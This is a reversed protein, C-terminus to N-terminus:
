NLLTAFRCAVIESLQTLFLNGMSYHFRNEDRSGIVLLARLNPLLIPIIACSKVDPAHEAFLFKNQVVNLRGCRPKKHIFEVTLCAINKDGPAIFFENVEVNSNEQMIKLAFFDILFCESLVKKLSHIASELNTSSLLVLTLQHMRSACLDNETAIKVLYHLQSELKSQKNKFNELQKAVLSVVNGRTPQVLTLSELLEDYYNFFDPHTQLYHAVHEPNLEDAEMM